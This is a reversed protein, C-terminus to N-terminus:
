EVVVVLVEHAGHRYGGLDSVEHAGLSEVLARGRSSATTTVHAGFYRALQIAFTGVGGAGGTILVRAGSQVHLEDRLVQWATLGALPLAAAATVDITTPAHAVLSEDVPCLAALAGMWQKDVRACVKDGPKFHQVDAGVADVVGALENGMAIPLPYDRIIKLKGDRTKYDVPNLGAAQVRVVVDRAGAARMPVDGLAAQGYRSLVFAKM